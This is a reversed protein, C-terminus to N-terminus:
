NYDEPNPHWKVRETALPFNIAPNAINPLVGEVRRV